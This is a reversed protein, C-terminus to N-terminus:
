IQSNYRVLFYGGSPFLMFHPLFVAVIPPMQHTSIFYDGLVNLAYYLIMVNLGLTLGNWRKRKGSFIGLPVGILGFVFSALAFSFKKYRDEPRQVERGNTSSSRFTQDPLSLNLDYTEFFIRQDDLSRETNRHVVGGVLKLRIVHAAPDSMFFGERATIWQTNESNRSDYIFVGKMRGATPMAEVYIMIGPIVENFKGADLLIPPQTNLLRSSLSKIWSPGQQLAITGSIYTLLMAVVAFLATPRLLRFLGVGAANMATVENDLSLRQFAMISAMLSVMPLTWQLLSPLFLLTMQGVLFPDIGKGIIMEMLRLLQLTIVLFLIVALGLASSTLLKRILYRDLTGFIV